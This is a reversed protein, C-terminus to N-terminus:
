AVASGQDTVSELLGNKVHDSSQSFSTDLIKRTVMSHIGDMNGFGTDERRGLV